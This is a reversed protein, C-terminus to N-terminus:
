QHHDNTKQGKDNTMQRTNLLSTQLQAKARQKTYNSGDDGPGGTEQDGRGGMEGNSLPM